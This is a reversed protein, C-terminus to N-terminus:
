WRSVGYRAFLVFQVLGMSAAAGYPLYLYPDDLFIYGYYCWSSCSVVTMLAFTFPLSATNKTQVVNKMMSLPAGFQICALLNAAIGIVPLVTAADFCTLAATLILWIGGIGVAHKSKTSPLWDAASPCHRMFVATYWMGCGVGVICPVWVAGNGAVIGYAAWVSNSMVMMSYPLLPLRGTSGQKSMDLITPVPSLYFVISALGPVGFCLDGPLRVCSELWWLLAPDRLSTFSRSGVSPEQFPGSPRRESGGAAAAAAHWRCVADDARRAPDCLLPFARSGSPAEAIRLFSPVAGIPQPWSLPARQGVRSFDSRVANAAARGTRLSACRLM